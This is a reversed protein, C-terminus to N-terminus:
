ILIGYAPKLATNQGIQVPGVRFRYKYLPKLTSLFFLAILFVGGGGGMYANDCVRQASFLIISTTFQLKELLYVM